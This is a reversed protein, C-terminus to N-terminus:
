PVLALPLYAANTGQCRWLGDDSAAFLWAPQDPSLTLTNITIGSGLGQGFSRWSFGSDESVYVGAGRVAAYLLSRRVPHIALCTVDTGAGDGPLGASRPRWVEGRDLSEFVGGGTTAVFLHRDDVPDIVLDRIGLGQGVIGLNEWTRGGDFSRYAEPSDHARALYLRDPDLRTVALSSDLPSYSCLPPTVYQQWDAGGSDSVHISACTEWATVYLRGDASVALGSLRSFPADRVVVEEWTLGGDRTRWLTSRAAVYVTWTDAAVQGLRYLDRDPLGHDRANWTSGGDPSAFVGSDQGATCVMLRDADEPHVVVDRVSVGSLAMRQWSSEEGLGEMLPALRVHGHLQYASVPVVLLAALCGGIALSRLARLGRGM